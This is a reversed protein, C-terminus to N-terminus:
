PDLACATVPTLKPKPIADQTMFQVLTYSEGLSARSFWLGDLRMLAVVQTGKSVDGLAIQNRDLDFALVPEDPDQNVKVKFRGKALTDKWLDPLVEESINKGPFWQDKVDVAHALHLESMRTFFAPMVESDCLFEVTEEDMNSIELKCTQFLLDHSREENECAVTYTKGNTKQPDFYRMEPIDDLNKCKYITHSM